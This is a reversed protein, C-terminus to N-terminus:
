RRVHEGFETAVSVDWTKREMVFTDFEEFM